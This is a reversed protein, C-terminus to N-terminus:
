FKRAKRFSPQAVSGQGASDAPEPQTRLFELAKQIAEPIPPPTPLHDGPFLFIM